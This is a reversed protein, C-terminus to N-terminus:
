WILLRGTKSRNPSISPMHRRRARLVCACSAWRRASSSWHAHSPLSLRPPRACSRTSEPSGSIPHHRWTRAVVRYPWYPAHARRDLCAPSLRHSSPATHPNISHALSAARHAIRSPVLALASRQDSALAEREQTEPSHASLFAFPLSLTTHTKSAVM